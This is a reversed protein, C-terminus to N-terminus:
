TLNISKAAEEITQFHIDNKRSYIRRLGHAHYGIEHGQNKIIDLLFRFKSGIQCINDEQVFFTAM